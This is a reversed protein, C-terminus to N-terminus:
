IGSLESNTNSLFVNLSRLSNSHLLKNYKPDDAKTRSINTFLKMEPLFFFLHKFVQQPPLSSNVPSKFILKLLYLIILIRQLKLNGSSYEFVTKGQVSVCLSTCRCVKFLMQTRTATSRFFTCLKTFSISLFLLFTQKKLLAPFSKIM